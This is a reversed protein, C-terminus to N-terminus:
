SASVKEKDEAPSELSSALKRLEASILPVMSEYRRAVEEAEVLFDDVGEGEGQLTERVLLRWRGCGECIGVAVEGSDTSFWTLQGECRSPEWLAWAALCYSGMLILSVVGLVPSNTVLAVPGLIIGAIAVSYMKLARLNVKVEM